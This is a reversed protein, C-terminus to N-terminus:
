PRVEADPRRLLNRLGFVPLGQLTAACYEKLTLQFVRVCLLIAAVALLLAPNVYETPAVSVGIM